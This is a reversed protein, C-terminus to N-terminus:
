LKAPNELGINGNLVSDTFRGPVGDGALPADALFFPYMGDLCLGQFSRSAEVHIVALYVPTLARAIEVGRAQIHIVLVPWVFVGSVRTVHVGEQQLNISIYEGFYLSFIQPHRGLVVGTIRSLSHKYSHLVIELGKGGEEGTNKRGDLEGAL